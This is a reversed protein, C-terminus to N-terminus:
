AFFSITSSESGEISSAAQVVGPLGSSQESQEMSNPAAAKKAKSRREGKSGRDEHSYTTDEMRASDEVGAMPRPELSPAVLRGVQLPLLATIPATGM